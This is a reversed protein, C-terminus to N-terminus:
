RRVQAVVGRGSETPEAGCRRVGATTSFAKALPKMKASKVSRERAREAQDGVKSVIGAVSPRSQKDSELTQVGARGGSGARESFPLDPSREAAQARSESSLRGTLEDM